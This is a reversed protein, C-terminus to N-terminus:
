DELEVERWIVIGGNLRGKMKVLTGVRVKNFFAARGIPQENLGQFDDNNLGSINVAVGVITLNPNSAVQVSGQLDVEDDASRQEVRTALVSNGAGIRGRVRVHDGALLDNLTNGSDARFETQSNVAVPVGPLGTITFTKAALNIAGINGELKVSSHFKVHKATLIGNAFRGEASLKAGVVIEDNTGSRFETSATTQVYTTGIFFDGPGVVQTVFGEVEFEDARQVGQNEPEVKTAALTGETQLNPGPTFQTGKAEVFLGNWAKGAPNPMDNIITTVDYIVTLNGIQFTKAVDDHNRVFGRVELTATGVPKKEIFTAQIIGDPRILGNVEVPDTGAVLKRIDRNPNQTSKDIITTNDVLVTQGMVVLSLGDAAVSQVLGEVADTQRVSSASRQNGNFSGTVLVTMGIKLDGQSKGSEGDVTFSSGSTEFKKGNVFVSGFGTITGSAAASGSASGSAGVPASDGGSGCAGLLGVLGVAGLLNFLISPRRM